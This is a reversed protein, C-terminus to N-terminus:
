RQGGLIVVLSQLLPRVDKTNTGYGRARLLICWLFVVARIIKPGIDLPNPRDTYSMTDRRM